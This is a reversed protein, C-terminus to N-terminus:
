SSAPRQTRELQWEMVFYLGILLPTLLWHLWHWAREMQGAIVLFDFLAHVCISALLGLVVLLCGRRLPLSRAWGLAAGWFCSFWPHAATSFVRSWDAGHRLYYILDEAYTFGLAAATAYVLGDVPDDFDKRWLVAGAVVAFKVLEEILGPVLLCELLLALDAHGSRPPLLNQMGRELPYAAACSLTGLIFVVMVWLWPEPHRDRQYYYILLALSPLLALLLLLM